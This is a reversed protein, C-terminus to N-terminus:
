EGNHEAQTPWSNNKIYSSHSLIFVSYLCQLSPTENFFYSNIDKIINDTENCNSKNTIHHIIQIFLPISLFQSHLAEDWHSVSLDGMLIVVAALWAGLVLLCPAPGSPVARDLESPENLPSTLISTHTRSGVRTVWGFWILNWILYLKNTAHVCM